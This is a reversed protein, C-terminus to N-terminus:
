TFDLENILKVAREYGQQASLSLYKHSLAKDVDCGRGVYLLQGYLCQAKSNGNDASLHSYKACEEIDRQAILNAYSFQADADNRDAAMKYFKLSEEINGKSELLVAYNYQGLINGHLAADRYLTMAKEIDRDVGRGNEYMVGLNCEADSDHLAAAKTFYQFAAEPKNYEHDLKYAYSLMSPVHGENAAKELYKIGEPISNGIMYMAEHNDNDAAIKLYYAAKLTDKKVGKGEALIKGCLYAADTNGADAAYKLFVSAKLPDAKVGDGEYLIRGCM